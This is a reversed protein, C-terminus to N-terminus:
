HITDIEKKKEGTPLFIFTKFTFSEFYIDAM